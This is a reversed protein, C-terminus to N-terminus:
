EELLNNNPQTQLPNPLHIKQDTVHNKYNGIAITPTNQKEKLEKEYKRVDECYDDRKLVGDWEFDQLMNRLVEIFDADGKDIYAWRLIRKVDILGNGNQIDPRPLVEKPTNQLNKNEKTLESNRKKLAAVQTQLAEIKGQLKKITYDKEVNEVGGKLNDLNLKEDLKDTKSQLVM